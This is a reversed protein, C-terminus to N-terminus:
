LSLFRVFFIIIFNNRFSKLLGQSLKPHSEDTGGGEAANKAKNTEHFFSNSCLSFLVWEVFLLKRLIEHFLYILSVLSFNTYRAGNQEVPLQYNKGKIETM